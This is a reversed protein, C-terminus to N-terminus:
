PSFLKEQKVKTEKVIEMTQQEAGLFPAKQGFDVEAKQQQKSDDVKKEKKHDEDWKSVAFKSVQVTDTFKTQTQDKVIDNIKESYEKKLKKELQENMRQQEKKVMKQGFEELLDKSKIEDSALAISTSKESRKKEEVDKTEKKSKEKRERVEQVQESQLLDSVKHGSGAIDDKLSSHKDDRKEKIEKESRLDFGPQISLSM